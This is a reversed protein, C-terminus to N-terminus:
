ASARVGSPPVSMAFARNFYAEGPSPAFGASVLGPVDTAFQEPNVGALFTHQATVAGRLDSVVEADWARDRQRLFVSIAISSLIGLVMLVVLLEVLPSDPTVISTPADARTAGDATREEDPLGQAADSAVQAVVVDPRQM